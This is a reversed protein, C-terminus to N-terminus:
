ENRVYKFEVTDGEATNPEGASLGPINVGVLSHERLENDTYVAAEDTAFSDNEKKLYRELAYM